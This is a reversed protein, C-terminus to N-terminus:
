ATQVLGLMFQRAIISEKSTGFTRIDGDEESLREARVTTMDYFVVSLDDNM